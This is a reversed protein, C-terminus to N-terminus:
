LSSYQEEVLWSKNFPIVVWISRVAICSMWDAGYKCFVVQMTAEIPKRITTCVDVAFSENYQRITDPVHHDGSYMGSAVGIRAFEQKPETTLPAIQWKVTLVLV